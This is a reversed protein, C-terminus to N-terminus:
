KVKHRNLLKMLSFSLVNWGLGIYIMLMIAQDYHEFAYTNGLYNHKIENYNRSEMERLYFAEVGWRPASISWAWRVYAYERDTVVKWLHPATGSLVLAWALSMGTGALGFMSRNVVASVFYGMAFANIYLLMIIFFLSSLQQRYAFFFIFAGTYMCAAVIMRPVDALIKALYYPLTPMGASTDRWFVAKEAGFTSSGVSIGAFFVGLAMFMGVYRIDDVPSACALQIAVPAMACVEAPQRPIYTMDKTAFSVCLGCALHLSQDSLFDMQSRYNQLCARKFCLLFVSGFSPTERVPDKERTFKCKISWLWHIFEDMVDKCWYMTDAWTSIFSMNITTLISQRAPRANENSEITNTTSGALNSFAVSFTPSQPRSPQHLAMTSVHCARDARELPLSASFAVKENNNNGKTNRTEEDQNNSYLKSSPRRGSAEPSGQNSGDNSLQVTMLTDSERIVHKELNMSLAVKRCHSDWERFLQLTRDRPTRAHSTEKDSNEPDDDLYRISRPSQCVRGAALSIFFDAPNEDEPVSYGIGEFYQAAEDRPGSYVVRGGAGLLLLDDFQNFAHPSPSHVVAAVTLFQEKAIQRLLKCVELSTASDLGSTPEDLFLISPSAVLEMGINVRKREGGSIGRTEVDGIPNDMIHGLGLFQIVELVKLRKENHSMHVPQRMRASHMLIERVTLDSLMVDEQPVFGILKKWITLTQEKGNVKISGDTKAVKGALISLLTTKGAGSPGMVACTRGASLRGSINKIVDVGTPLTLGLKEFRIDFSREVRPISMTSVNMNGAATAVLALSRQSAAFDLGGGTESDPGVRSSNLTRQRDELIISQALQAAEQKRRQESELDHSNDGLERLRRRYRLRQARFVRKKIAFVAMVMLAFAFLIAGLGYKEVAETGPPCYALFNCPLKPVSKSPRQTQAQKANGHSALHLRTLVKPHEQWRVDLSPDRYTNMIYLYSFVSKAPEFDLPLESLVDTRTEQIHFDHIIHQLKELSMGKPLKLSPESGTQSVAESSILDPLLSFAAQTLRKQHQRLAAVRNLEDSSLPASSSSSHDQSSIRHGKHRHQKEHRHRVQGRPVLNELHPSDNMDQLAHKQDQLGPQSNSEAYM